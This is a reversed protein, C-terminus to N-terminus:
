LNRPIISLNELPQQKKGLLDSSWPQFQKLDGELVQFTVMTSAVLIQLGVHILELWLVMLFRWFFFCESDLFQSLLYTRKTSNERDVSSIEHIWKNATTWTKVPLTAVPIWTVIERGKREGRTESCFSVRRCGQVSPLYHPNTFGTPTPCFM